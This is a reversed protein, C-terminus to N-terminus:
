SAGALWATEGDAEAISVLGLSLSSSGPAEAGGGADAGGGMGPAVMGGDPTRGPSGFGARVGPASLGATVWAVIWEVMQTDPQVAVMRGGDEYVVSSL